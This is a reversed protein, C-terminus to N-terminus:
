QPPLIVKNIVHIVGNTTLIDATTVEADNIFVKGDKVTIKIPAGELTKAETLKAADAALVKGAVVHYKLIDGLKKPDKLLAELTNKPLSAFADDTTAFVTFPGAGKLADVLGAAKLAAALTKFNGAAIATDVIDMTPAQSMSDVAPPLLVTDIVHIVGNSTEIDAKVVNADGIMVKDGNVTITVPKGLLTEASTLKVVDSAMVKGAVVHYKLIDGLAKPDKLLAEVTGAPLKAFAEDTPAFVTFPGAGKLTDVLGAAQLAAALTKFSGAAVATDVIDKKDSMAMSPPMMVTDIVHIVGNSTEIDAKVVKADNIMVTSGDVKITVPEGQLTKAESLKVVDAAKVAGSVVHYKLIEGLAKPDKLLAALTEKPLKAFAEDTPAFVTFPGKGKLADVLSAAQLATALTKFSGAAVATDVIDKLAPAETAKPAETAAAQTTPAKTPAPAQTPAPAAAPACAALAIALALFVPLVISKKM